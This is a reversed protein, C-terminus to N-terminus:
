AVSPSITSRSSDKLACGFVSIIGSIGVVALGYIVLATLSNLPADLDMALEAGGRLRHYHGRCLRVHDDPIGAQRGDTKDASVLAAIPLVTTLNVLSIEKLIGM